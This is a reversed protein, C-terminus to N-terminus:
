YVMFPVKANTWTRGGDGAYDNVTYVPDETM